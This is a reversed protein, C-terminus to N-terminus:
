LTTRESSQMLRLIEAERKKLAGWEAASLETRPTGNELHVICFPYFGGITLVPRLGFERVVRMVEPLDRENTLATITRAPDLGGEALQRITLQSANVGRVGATACLPRLVPLFNGCSHVTVGGLAEAVRSIYPAVFEEYFAPSCMVLGDASLSCGCDDPVWDHAFLHTGIFTEGLVAKQAQWLMIFAETALSLLRHYREPDEYACLILEDYRWLQACVDFPGQMDCVHIGIRGDTEALMVEAAEIWYAAASGPRLSPVPLRDIDEPKHILKQCGTELGLRVEAAGLMSPISAHNLGPFISPILDDGFQGTFLLGDLYAQVRERPPHSVDYPGFFPWGYTFPYRDPLVGGNWMARWRAKSKELRTKPYLEDLQDLKRHTQEIM